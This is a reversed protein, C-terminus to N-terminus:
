KVTIARSYAVRYNTTSTSKASTRVRYQESHALGKRAFKYSGTVGSITSTTKSTVAKWPKTSNARQFLTTTLGNVGKSSVLARGSITFPANTAVTSKSSKITVTPTVTVKAFAIPAAGLPTGATVDGVVIQCSSSGPACTATGIAGTHVTFNTPALVGNADTAGLVVNNTDCASQSTGQGCEVIAVNKSPALGAGSVSVVQANKLSKHPDVQVTNFTLPGAGFHGATPNFPNDTAAVGCKTSSGDCTGNGVAGTHVKFPVNTINGSADSTATVIYPSTAGDCTAPNGSTIDSCESLYVSTSPNFGSGTVKVIDGNLLGTNPSASLTATAAAFATGTSVPVLLAGLATLAGTAVVALSMRSKQMM